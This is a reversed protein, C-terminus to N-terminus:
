KKSHTKFATLLYTIKKDHYEPAIVVIKKNYIFEFNGRNNIKRFNGKEICEGIESIFSNLDIGQETRRNVIHQLGLDNNGWLIDIPGTDNRHFAGKVHGQKEQLIKNIADQGKYGKFEKGYLANIEEETAVPNEYEIKPAIYSKKKDESPNDSYKDILKDVKGKSDYPCNKNEHEKDTFHGQICKYSM